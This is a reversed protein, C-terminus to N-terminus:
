FTQDDNCSETAHGFAECIDCYPRQATPNGHYTTHPVSDPSQAQTPCDETDHLDFSDCIDCFLRPPAKKERKEELGDTGDNGNFEALVMKKLKTKLDENKRQLDVIVSNLFNIQGEAFEKEERLQDVAADGTGSSPVGSDGSGSAQRGLLKQELSQVRQQLQAKDKELTAVAVQLTKAVANEGRLVEIENRLTELERDKDSILSSTHFNRDGDQNTLLGERDRMNPQQSNNEVKHEQLHQSKQAALKLEEIEQQLSGIRQSESISREQSVRVEEQFKSNQEQFQSNQQKLVELQCHSSFSTRSFGYQFTAAVDM